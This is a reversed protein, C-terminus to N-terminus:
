KFSESASDLEQYDERKTFLDAALAADDNPDIKKGSVPDTPMKVITVRARGKLRRCDAYASTLADADFMLCVEELGKVAALKTLQDSSIKHKFCAIPVAKINRKALERRLSRVNFIAEVVIAIGGKARLEDINYWWYRSGMPLEDKSPFRKTSQGPEDAYTRGQYYVVKGWEYVPFICYPEWKTSTRTFGAGAQIFDKLDLNKRLAMREILRAYACHPEASLPTFGPPLKIETVYSPQRPASKEDLSDVIFDLDNKEVGPSDEIDIDYGLRRAWDLFKGGRGCRWCSTLGTKLNISRNGSRDGCNEEPCIIAIEDGSSREPIVEFLSEIQARLQSPSYSPM